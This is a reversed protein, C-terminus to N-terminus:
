VNENLYFDLVDRQHPFEDYECFTKCRRHEEVMSTDKLPYFDSRDSYFDIKITSLNMENFFMDITIM